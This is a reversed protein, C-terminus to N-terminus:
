RIVIKYSKTGNEAIVELVYVGGHLASVNMQEMGLSENCLEGGTTYLRMACVNSAPVIVGEVENYTYMGELEEADIGSPKRDEVQFEIEKFESFAQAGQFMPYVTQLGVIHRGPDLDELICETKDTTLLEEGDLTINFSTMNFTEPCDYGIMVDDVMFFMHQASVCRLVTHKAEAPIKYTFKTWIAGVKVPKETIWVVSDATAEGTTYGVMFEEKGLEAYFGSAAMFSFIFDNNFNLEPSFMYDDNILDQQELSVSILMKEGSYPRAFETIQPTTKYPNMVQFAMPSHM